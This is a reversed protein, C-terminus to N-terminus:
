NEEQGDLRRLLEGYVSDPLHQPPATPTGSTAEARTRHEDSGATDATTTEVEALETVPSEAAPRRPRRDPGVEVGRCQEIMVESRDLMQEIRKQTAIWEDQLQDVRQGLNKLGDRFSADFRDVWQDYSKFSTVVDRQLGEQWQRQEERIEEVLRHQHTTEAEAASLLKVGLAVRRDATAEALRIAQKQEEPAMASSPLQVPSADAEALRLPRAAQSM